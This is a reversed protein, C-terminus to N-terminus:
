ANVIQDICTNTTGADLMCSLEWHQNLIEAFKDIDGQELVFCMLVAVAKM